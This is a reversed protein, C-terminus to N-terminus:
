HCVGVSETLLEKQAHAVFAELLQRKPEYFTVIWRRVAGSAPPVAADVNKGIVLTRRSVRPLRLEIWVVIHTPRLAALGEGLRHATFM